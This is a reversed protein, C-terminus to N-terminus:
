GLIGGADRWAAARRSISFGRSGPEKMAWYDKNKKIANFLTGAWALFEPTAAIQTSGDWASTSVYLRGPALRGTDDDLRSRSLEVVPSFSANIVYDGQEPVHTIRLTGLDQRRALYRMGFDRPLPGITEEERPQPGSMRVALFVVDGRAKLQAELDFVDEPMMYFNVQRGM